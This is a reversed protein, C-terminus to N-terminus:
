FPQVRTVGDFGFYVRGEPFEWIYNGGEMGQIGEEFITKFRSGMIREVENPSMGRRVQTIDHFKGQGVVSPMDPKSCGGGLLVTALGLILIARM